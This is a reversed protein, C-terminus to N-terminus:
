MNSHSEQFGEIYVMLSVRLLILIYLSRSRAVHSVPVNLDYAAKWINYRGMYSLASVSHLCDPKITSIM